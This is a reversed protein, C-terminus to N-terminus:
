VKHGEATSFSSCKFNLIRNSLFEMPFGVSDFLRSGQSAESVSGGVLFMCPSSPPGQCMQVLHAACNRPPDGGSCSSCLSDRFNYDSQTNQKGVPSGQRTETPSFSGLGACVHHALTPPYGSPTGIREYFLPFVFQFPYSSPLAETLPHHPSPSTNPIYYILDQSFALGQSSVPFFFPLTVVPKIIGEHLDSVFKSQVTELNPLPGQFINSSRRVGHFMRKLPLESGQREGLPWQNAM